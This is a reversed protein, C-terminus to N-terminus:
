KKIIINELKLHHNFVKETMVFENNSLSMRYNAVSGSGEKPPALIKITYASGTKHTIEFEGGGTDTFQIGKWNEM